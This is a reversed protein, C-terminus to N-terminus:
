DSINSSKNRTQKSEAVNSENRKEEMRAIINELKKIRQEINQVDVPPADEHVKIDYPTASVKGVGDSICMWVIPASTDMVLISSNPAMQITDVSAKGNVQIIQQQPLTNPNQFQYPNYFLNM